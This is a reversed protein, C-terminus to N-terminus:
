QAKRKEAHKQQNRPKLVALVQVCMAAVHLLVPVRLNAQPRVITASASSIARHSLTAPRDLM